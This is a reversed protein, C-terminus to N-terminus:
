VGGEAPGEHETRTRRRPTSQLSRPAEFSVDVAEEPRREEERVIDALAQKDAPTLPPQVLSRPWLQRALVVHKQPRRPTQSARRRVAGTRAVLRGRRHRRGLRGWTAAATSGM